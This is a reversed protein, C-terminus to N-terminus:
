LEGAMLRDLHRQGDAFAEKEDAFPMHSVQRVGHVERAGEADIPAHTVEWNWGGGFAYTHLEFITHHTKRIEQM